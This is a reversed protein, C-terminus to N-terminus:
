NVMKKLREVDMPELRSDIPFFEKELEESLRKRNQLEKLTIMQQSYNTIIKTQGQFSTPYKKELFKSITSLYKSSNKQSNEQTNKEKKRPTKKKSPKQSTSLKQLSLTSLYNEERLTKTFKRSTYQGQYVELKPLTNSLIQPLYHKLLHERAQETVYQTFVLNLTQSKKLRDDYWLIVKSKQERRSLEKNCCLCNIKHLETESESSIDIEVGFKLGTNKCQYTKLIYDKGRLFYSDSLSVSQSDLKKFLKTYDM